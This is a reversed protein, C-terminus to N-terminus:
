DEEDSSDGDDDQIKMAAVRNTNVFLLDDLNEGEESDYGYDDAYVIGDDAEEKAAAVVSTIEASNNNEIKNFESDASPWLGKTQLHKIQDKYLIHSIIYRIGGGTDEKAAPTTKKLFEPEEKETQNTKNEEDEKDDDSHDDDTTGTQVIVFDNRKVWVLKHFKTPLIALQPTRSSSEQRQQQQQPEKDRDNSRASEAESEAVLIDFQNGGRTAVVKAIREHPQPEPLDNLVSDTLHKRYHTRRGLGAM